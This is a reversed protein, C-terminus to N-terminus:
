GSFCYVFYCVWIGTNFVPKFHPYGLLEAFDQWAPETNLDQQFEKLLIMDSSFKDQAKLPGSVASLM